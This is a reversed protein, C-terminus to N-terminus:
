RRGERNLHRMFNPSNVDRPPRERGMNKFAAERQQSREIAVSIRQARAYTYSRTDMGSTRGVNKFHGLCKKCLPVIEGDPTVIYSGQTVVGGDNYKVVEGDRVVNWENPQFTEKCEPGGCAITASPATEDRHPNSLELRAEQQHKLAQIRNEIAQATKEETLQMGGSKADAILRARLFKDFAMGRSKLLYHGAPTVPYQDLSTESAKRPVDPREDSKVAVPAQAQMTPSTTEVAKEKGGKKSAM